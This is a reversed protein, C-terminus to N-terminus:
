RPIRRGGSRNLIFLLIAILLLVPAIWLLFGVAQITGGLLLAVIALAGVVWILRKM